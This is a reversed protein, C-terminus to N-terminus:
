TTVSFSRKYKMELDESIWQDSIVGCRHRGLISGSCLGDLSKRQIQIVTQVYRGRARQDTSLSNSRKSERAGHSRQHWNLHQKPVLRARTKHWPQAAYVTHIFLTPKVPHGGDWGWNTTSTSQYSPTLNGHYKLASITDTDSKSDCRGPPYLAHEPPPCRWHDVSM